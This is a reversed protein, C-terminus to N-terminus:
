EMSSLAQGTDQSATNQLNPQEEIDEYGPKCARMLVVAKILVWLM